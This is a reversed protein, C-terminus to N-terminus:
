LHKFSVRDIYYLRCLSVIYIGQFSIYVNRFFFMSKLDNYFCKSRIKKILAVSVKIFQYGFIQGFIDLNHVSLEGILSVQSYIKTKTLIAFM